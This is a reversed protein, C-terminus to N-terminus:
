IIGYIARRVKFAKSLFVRVNQLVLDQFLFVVVYFVENNTEVLYM